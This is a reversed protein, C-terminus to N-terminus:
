PARLYATGRPSRRRPRGEGLGEAGGGGAQRDLEKRSEEFFTKMREARRPSMPVGYSRRLADRDTEYRELLPPLPNGGEQPARPASPAPSSCAVLLVLTSGARLKM